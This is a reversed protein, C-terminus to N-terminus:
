ALYRLKFEIHFQANKADNDNLLYIQKEDLTAGHGGVYVFIIHRKGAVTLEKTLKLISLYTKKLDKLEPSINIFKHEPGVGIADAIAQIHKGDTVTAKLNYLKECGELTRLKEYKDETILWFIKVLNLAKKKDAETM